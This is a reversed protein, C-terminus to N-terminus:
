IKNIRRVGNLNKEKEHVRKMFAITDSVKDACVTIFANKPSTDLVYQIAEMEDSIIKVPMTADVEFIGQTLLENIEDMDRGRLDKDHRIVIQDFAEAAIRGVSRIDEDRRDGAVAIVGVKVSAKTQSLFKKLQIFGDPNHAYDVMVDFKKFNFINMRGPTYESSPVFSKLAARIETLEFKLLYATLVAPLLNKIMSEARGNLTAPIDEVKEIRTKWRGDCITLFGNEIVAAVGGRRLHKRVRENNENMAFLALNSNIDQEIDYVLDDEANLISYGDKKTTRPVVAKVRAMDELTFIDRTGLHDETINTVISIDSQDFALGSRLIGGRACELVAFDVTPDFLISEASVPGSCDGEYVTNGNIYIGDSTTFGVNFKGAYRALHAIMRTTTTKGNTGTVAVLPIRGDDDNPFLMDIIPKAINRPLGKSPSHHMRLGPGSNIEIIYGNGGTLPKSIDHAIIDIGCIDLGIIRAAREAVFITYPHVLDTVDESSGGTSINPTYKLELLEGKELVSSLKLKKSSLLEETEEDVEIQSLSEGKKRTPEENAQIILEEITSTGNGTISAVSRKAAAVFKYNVMMFRYDNGEVFEEIVVPVSISSAVHFASFAERLNLIPRTIGRGASGEVPKVVLPFELDSIYEEVEKEEYVLVGKPVPIFERELLRRTSEKDRSIKIGMGPTTGTLTARLKQQKVGHGLVVLSTNDLRKLPINKKQAEDIISQTGAGLRYRNSIRELQRIDRQVEYHQGKVLADAIRVAAEIAYRGVEEIEYAFVVFYVGQKDASRTRGYGCFMGALTQIELAIHEIVHGMWTGQEVREFFGGSHGESCYHDKLSPLLVKLREGFGPIRHTPERELEELDLKVVIIKKRYNSWYNPGRM